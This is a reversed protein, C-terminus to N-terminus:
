KAGSTSAAHETSIPTPNEEQSRGHDSSRHNMGPRPTNASGPELIAMLAAMWPGLAGHGSKEVFGSGVPCRSRGFAMRKLVPQCDNANANLHRGDLGVRLAGHVDADALGDGVMVDAAGDRAARAREFVHLGTGAAGRTAAAAFAFRPLQDRGRQFGLAPSCGQGDGGSANKEITGLRPMGSNRPLRASKKAVPM